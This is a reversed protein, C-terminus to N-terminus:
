HKMRKWDAEPLNHSEYGEMKRKSGSGSSNVSQLAELVDEVHITDCGRLEVGRIVSVMMEVASNFGREYERRKETEGLQYLRTLHNAALRFHQGTSESENGNRFSSM